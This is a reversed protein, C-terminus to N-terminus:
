EQNEELSANNQDPVIAGTSGFPLHRAFDRLTRPSAFPARRCYEGDRGEGRNNSGRGLHNGVHFIRNRVGGRPGQPDRSQQFGRGGGFVFIVAVPPELPGEVCPMGAADGNCALTEVAVQEVDNVIGQNGLFLRSSTAIQQGVVLNRQD